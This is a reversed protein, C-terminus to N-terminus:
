RRGAAKKRAAIEEKLRPPVKVGAKEAAKVEREAEELRGGVLLVVALNNHADGHESDTALASRFEAEAEALAGAGFQARGLAVALNPPEREPHQRLRQLDAIRQELAAVLPLSQGLSPRAGGGNAEQAPIAAKKLRDREVELLARRLAQIEADIQGRFRARAEPDGERLCRLAERCRTFARVAEPPRREVLAAGLAYHAFPSAPDLRAADRLAQEGDDFRGGALAEEGLKVLARAEDRSTVGAEPPCSPDDSAAARLAFLLFAPFPARRL